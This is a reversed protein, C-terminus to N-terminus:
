QMKLDCCRQGNEWECLFSSLYGAMQVESFFDKLQSEMKQIQIKLNEQSTSSYFTWVFFGTKGKEQSMSPWFSFQNKRSKGINLFYARKQDQSYFSLISSMQYRDGFLFNESPKYGAQLLSPSLQHWGLCERFPNTKFPIPLLNHSQISPLSLSFIILLISVTLGSILWNKGRQMKEYIFWVFFVIATPYAYVAWNGQMKQFLSAISYGILIALSLFGCFLLSNPIEKRRRLLFIFAFLLLCFFVPSLLAAQAGIFDFFNAKSTHVIAGVPRPGGQIITWVHKFTPWERSYNWIITPIIGLSSLAAGLFFQKNRFFPLLYLLFLIVLWLMYIPWKFLAGILIFLGLLYYNPAQQRHIASVIISCSLTWFLVFPADTTAFFSSLIGMPTFAIILGAWFCISSRLGSSYALFYTALSLAFGVGIAGFRVGLETNGWLFSGLWIEWAIGPPKSYYGWDLNQSWTWYQAEDPGLGIGSFLIVGVIALSKLLLILCLLILLSNGKYVNIYSFLKEKSM